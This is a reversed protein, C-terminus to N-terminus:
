SHPRRVGVVGHRRPRRHFPGLQHPHDRGLDQVGHGGVAPGLEMEAGLLCERGGSLPVVRSASRWGEWLCPPSPSCSCRAPTSAPSRLARRPRGPKRRSSALAAAGAIFMAIGAVGLAVLALTGNSVSSETRVLAPIRDADDATRDAGLVPTQGSTGSVTLVARIPSLTLSGNRSQSVIIVYDGPATSPPVTFSVNITQNDPRPMEALVPGDLANFRIQVPDAQRFGTGTATVQEGPKAKVTSLNVVPGSVCAWAASGAMVLVAIGALAGLALRRVHM